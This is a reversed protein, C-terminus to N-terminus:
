PYFITLRTRGIMFCDGDILEVAGRVRIFTGNQSKLDHLFYQQGHRSITAHQASLLEDQSACIDANQRGILTSDTLPYIAGVHDNELMMIIRPTHDHPAGLTPISRHEPMNTSSITVPIPRTRFILRQSGVLIEDGDELAFDDAVRLYVGNHSGLDELMLSNHDTYLQAHWKSAFPDALPLDARERGILFRSGRIEYRQATPSGYTQVNIWPHRAAVPEPAPMSMPQPTAPRLPANWPPYEDAPVSSLVEDEGDNSALLGSLPHNAEANDDESLVFPLADPTGTREPLLRPPQDYRNNDSM